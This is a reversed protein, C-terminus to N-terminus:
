VNPPCICEVLARLDMRDSLECYCTPHYHVSAVGAGRFWSFHSISLGEAREIRAAPVCVSWLWVSPKIAICLSVVPILM